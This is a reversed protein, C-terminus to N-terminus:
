FLALKCVVCDFCFWSWMKLNTEFLNGRRGRMLYIKLTEVIKTIEMIESIFCFQYSQVPSVSFIAIWIKISLAYIHIVLTRQWTAFTMKFTKCCSCNVLIWLFMWCQHFKGLSTICGTLFAFLCVIIVAQYMPWIFIM